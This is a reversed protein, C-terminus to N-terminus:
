LLFYTPTSGTGLAGLQPLSVNVGAVTPVALDPAPYLGPSVIYPYYPTAAGLIGAPLGGGGSASARGISLGSVVLIVIAFTSVGAQIRRDRLTWRAGPVRPHLRFRRVRAGSREPATRYDGFEAADSSQEGHDPNM